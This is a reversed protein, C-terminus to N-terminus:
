FSVDHCCRVFLSRYFHYVTKYKDVLKREKLVTKKRKSFINFKLTLSDFCGFLTKAFVTYCEWSNPINDPWYIQTCSNCVMIYVTCFIFSKLWPNRTLTLLGATEQTHEIMKHNNFCAMKSKKDFYLIFVVCCRSNPLAWVHRKYGKMVPYLM